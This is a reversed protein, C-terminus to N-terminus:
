SHILVHCSPCSGQRDRVIYTMRGLLIPRERVVRKMKVALLGHDPAVHRLPSAAHRRNFRGFPVLKVFLSESKVFANGLGESSEFTKCLSLRIMLM